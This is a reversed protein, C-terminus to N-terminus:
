PPHLPNTLLGARDMEEQTHHKLPHSFGVAKTVQPVLRITLGPIELIAGPGAAMAEIVAVAATAPTIQEQLGRM